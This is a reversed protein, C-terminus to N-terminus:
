GSVEWFGVGGHIIRALEFWFAKAGRVNHKTRGYRRQGRPTNRPDRRAEKYAACAHYATHGAADAAKIIEWLEAITSAFVVYKRKSATEVIFAAYPGQEPLILALFACATQDTQRDPSLM